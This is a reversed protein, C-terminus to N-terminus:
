PESGDSSLNSPAEFAPEPPLYVALFDRETDLRQYREGEQCDDTDSRSALGVVREVGGLVVRAPGGSDGYCGTAGTRGIVYFSPFAAAFPAETQRKRGQDNANLSTMGYGVLRTTQAVSADVARAYMPIPVARPSTEVMAVDHQYPGTRLTPTSRTRPSSSSTTVTATDVDPAHTVAYVFM